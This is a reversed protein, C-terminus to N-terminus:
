ETELRPLPARKSQTTGSAHEKSKRKWSSRPRNANRLACPNAEPTGIIRMVPLAESVGDDHPQRRLDDM